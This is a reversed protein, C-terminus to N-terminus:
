LLNIVEIMNKAGVKEMINARHKEVTRPSLNLEQAIIKIPLGNASLRYIEEERKTLKFGVPSSLNDKKMSNTFAGIFPKRANPHIDHIRCVQVIISGLNDKVLFLDFLSGEKCSSTVNDIDCLPILGSELRKFQHYKIPDSELDFIKSFKDGVVEINSELTIKEFAANIKKIRGANVLFMPIKNHDFLDLFTSNNQISISKAKHMQNEIKREIAAFNFPKFILNDVGVELANQILEVQNKGVVLFIPIKYKKLFSELIQFSKFPEDGEMNSNCIVLDASGSEIQDIAHLYDDSYSFFYGRDPLFQEFQNLDIKELGLILINYM